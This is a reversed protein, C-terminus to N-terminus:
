NRIEYVFKKLQELVYNKSYLYGTSSFKTKYDYIILDNRVNLKFEPFVHDVLEETCIPENFLNFITSNTNNLILQNMDSVINELNYWQYYSNLNIHEIRNNNLLDYIVNKKLSKGFLAPLRFVYYNDYEILEHVLYEFLLRNSGYNLGSFNPFYDEDVKLPSDGYVDISSFLYVNNYKKKFLVSIINQINEFDKQINQNILWKTAPLCSLYLDCEDPCDILDQINQSNFEYDFKQQLKLNTGVFGTNGILIKM